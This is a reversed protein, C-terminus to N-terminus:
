LQYLLHLTEVVLSALYDEPFHGSIIFVNPMVALSSSSNGHHDHLPSLMDFVHM